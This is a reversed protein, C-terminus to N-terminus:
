RDHSTNDMTGAGDAASPLNSAPSATGRCKGSVIAFRSHCAIFRSKAASATLASSVVAALACLWSSQGFRGTRTIEVKAAPPVASMSARMTASWREVANLCCNKTSTRAPAPPWIPMLVITSEARGRCRRCRWCRADRAAGSSGPRDRSRDSSPGPWCRQHDRARRHQQRDVRLAADLRELVEDLAALLLRQVIGRGAEAAHAMQHRQVEDRHGADLALVHGVLARRLASASRTPPWM